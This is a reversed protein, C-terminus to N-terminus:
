PHEGLAAHERDLVRIEHGVPEVRLHEARHMERPHADAHALGCGADRLDELQIGLPHTFCAHLVRERERPNGFPTPTFAIFGLRTM